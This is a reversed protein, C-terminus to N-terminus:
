ADAPDASLGLERAFAAATVIRVAGHRGLTLLDPKDGTVLRDARGAECLALLYDDRPDPSRAVPPLADPMEAAATLENVLRGAKAPRILSRVKGRRTVDRIEDLQLPHSIITFRGAFLARLLRAPTGAPTILASIFINTDLVVRM